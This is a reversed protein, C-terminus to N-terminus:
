GVAGDARVAQGGPAQARAARGSRARRRCPLRPSLRRHGQGRRDRRRAARDAARRDVADSPWRCRALSCRVSPGCVPCANPQAHFRRDAPDEYEARCAACMTFGAMTTLPRDYPVGRVITFRPGCNTCNIFPYRYRRDAPDFLERLCDACTATDATVPADPAAGGVSQASRSRAGDGRDSRGRRGRGARARGAAAGRSRLRALFADVATAGGEVEILVGHPTTSCSGASGSSARRAPLRLSPLRRGARHGHGARACAACARAPAVRANM